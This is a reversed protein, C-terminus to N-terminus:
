ELYESFPEFEKERIALLDKITKESKLVQVYKQLGDMYATDDVFVFKESVAKSLVYKVSKDPTPFYVTINSGDASTVEGYGNLKSSVSSGPLYYPRFFDLAENLRDLEKRSEELKELKELAKKEQEERLRVKEPDPPTNFTIGNFLGYTSCCYILDFILLHHKEDPHMSGPEEVEFRSEHTKMLANNHEIAAKVEDCMRYYVDLKTSRGSKWDDFFDICYAFKRSHSPKLIYSNDPDYLTQLVTATHVTSKYRFSGPFYKEMLEASGSLFRRIEQMKEVPPLPDSAFLDKLLVKVASPERKAFEYLGYFPQTYSDTLNGTLKQVKLLMGAFDTDNAALADDMMPKFSKAILWKYTEHSKSDNMRAFKKIYNDVIQGFHLDNM